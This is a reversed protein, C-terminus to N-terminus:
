TTAGTQKITIITASPMPATSTNDTFDVITLPGFSDVAQVILTEEALEIQDGSKLDRVQVKM